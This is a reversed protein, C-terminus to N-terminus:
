EWARGDVGASAGTPFSGEDSGGGTKSKGRGPVSMNSIGANSASGSMPSVRRAATDLSISRWGVSSCCSRARAMALALAWAAATAAAM